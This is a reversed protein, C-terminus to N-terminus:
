ADSPAVMCKFNVFTGHEQKPVRGFGLVGCDHLSFMEGMLRFPEKDDVVVFTGNTSHDILVFKGSFWEIRAHERSTGDDKIVLSNASDSGIRFPDCEGKLTFARDDHTLFLSEYIRDPLSFKRRSTTTLAVGWLIEYLETEAAHGKLKRKAVSVARWDGSSPLKLVTAATTLTRGSRCLAAVRAAVNVTDGFIDESESVVPGSHFAIRVSLKAPSDCYQTHGIQHMSISARVAAEPSEFRCMLADGIEKLVIGNARTACSRINSLFGRIVERALLDGLSVYLKVSDVVDVFLVTAQSINHVAARM